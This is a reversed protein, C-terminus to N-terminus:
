SSRAALPFLCRHGHDTSIQFWPIDAAACEDAAYRCRAAFRCGVFDPPISPPTGPIGRMATRPRWLPVAELLARTYPHRPSGVVDAVPGDEVVQGGYLVVLRTCLETALLIDHTVFLLSLQRQRTIRRLLDIVEAQTTVDLASTCEDAIV